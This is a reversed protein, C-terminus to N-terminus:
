GLAVSSESQQVARKPPVRYFRRANTDLVAALDDGVADAIVDIDSADFARQARTGPLDSGFMLAEPSVAHIQRLTDLIDMEVRGFGTAKVKVGRDVLNLLYPLGDTSMGMHDVSAAPLKALVPELSPLLSGDVYLEAHWGAIEHARLAQLTLGAIDIAGRKLNFRIARVGARDLEVIDDDTADPDLQTVGVWSDGLEALAAVLYPQDTEQWSGSVVAGGEVGFGSMRERYQAITFHEPLYGNNGVLPFRPDIIHLHADFVARLM